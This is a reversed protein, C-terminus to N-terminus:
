IEKANELKEYHQAFKSLKACTLAVSHLNALPNM